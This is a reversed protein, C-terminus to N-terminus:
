EIYISLPNAKSHLTTNGAVLPPRGNKKSRIHLPLCSYYSEANWANAVHSTSMQSNPELSAAM